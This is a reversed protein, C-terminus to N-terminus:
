VSAISGMLPLPAPRILHFHEQPILGAVKSRYTSFDSHTVDQVARSLSM